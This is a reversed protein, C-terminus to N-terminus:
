LVPELITTDNRDYIIIRFKKYYLGCILDQMVMEKKIENM